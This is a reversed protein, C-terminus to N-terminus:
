RAVGRRMRYPFLFPVFLRTKRAFDGGMNTAAVDNSIRL